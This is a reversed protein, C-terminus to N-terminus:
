LAFVLTKIVEGARVPVGHRIITPIDIDFCSFAVRWARARIYSSGSRTLDPVHGLDMGNLEVVKRVRVCELYQPIAIPVPTNDLLLLGLQM